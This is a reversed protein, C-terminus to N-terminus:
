GAGQGMVVFYDTYGGGASDGSMVFHTIYKNIISNPSIRNTYKYGQVVSYNTDAMTVPLNITKNGTNNNPYTIGQEVWGSKYKRYWNNGNKYTEVVYDINEDINLLDVDAKTQLDTATESKDAKNGGLEQILDTLENDAQISLEKNDSVAAALALFNANVESAKAKTGPIFSYPIM